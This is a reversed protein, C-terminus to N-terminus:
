CAAMKKVNYDNKYLTLPWNACNEILFESKFMTSPKRKPKIFM